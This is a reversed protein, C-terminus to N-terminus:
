LMFDFLSNLEKKQRELRALLRELSEPTRVPAKIIFGEDEFSPVPEITFDNQGRRIRASLSRFKKEYAAVRPFRANRLAQYFAQSRAPEDRRPDELIRAFDERRALAALSGNRKLLDGLWEGTKLLENATLRVHPAIREAFDRQQTKTLRFFVPIGRFPLRGEAVARLLGADLRSAREYVEYTRPDPELAMAPFLEEIVQAPRYGFEGAAKRVTRCRDLDSWEQRWNSLVALAFCDAASIKAQIECVPLCRLGGRVAARFRRHGAVLTKAKGGTVWLPQVIGRKAISDRLAADTTEYRCQYPFEGRIEDTGASTIKLVPM